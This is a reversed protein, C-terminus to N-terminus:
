RASRTRKALHDYSVRLEDRRNQAVRLAVLAHKMEVRLASARADLVDCLESVEVLEVRTRDIEDHTALGKLYARQAKASM